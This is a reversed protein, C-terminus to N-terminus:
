TGCFTKLVKQDPEPPLAFASCEDRYNYPNSLVDVLQNFLSFDDHHTADSIAAEIIHNRPIFAPNVQHMKEQTAITSIGQKEREAHWLDRWENLTSPLPLINSFPSPENESSLSEALSRFTLTFDLSNDAMLNLLGDILHGTENTAKSFGCKKAMLDQYKKEYIDHFTHIATHAKQLAKEEDSDLLPLLAQALWSVNWQGIDRQNNYAYRGHRDISSFVTDPNYEDMFACPGYDITEGCILMNDTNMVGHIFGVSMWHAILEAQAKIVCQLLGTYRDDAFQASINDKYHREIMYDALTRVSNLDDRSSFYQFTGIRIHSKAVRTLIAGPLRTERIVNEGTTVAALARSTPIGFKEMTESVIYERLVPGLPSRGDGGRSYPTRGSGKLQVDYRVGNKDIKEGLLIARGDGLQPNWHGFQHGAYVTAIPTTNELNYNGSFVSVAEKAKLDNLDFQLDTALDSNIRILKPDAVPTPLQESSFQDGLQQYSNELKISNFVTM